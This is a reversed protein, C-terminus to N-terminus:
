PQSLTLAWGHPEWEGATPDFPAETDGVDVGVVLIRAAGDLKEVTLSAHTGRDLSGMPMEGLSAGAEDLKVVVWRMRGYDEWDAELRLSAGQPRDRTEVVVYSAGLPAVPEPPLLRRAKAPWGIRWGVRAPPQMSARDVSFRIIADDFTSGSFLRDRLSSRLVDFATPRKPWRSGDVTRTPSLASLGEVLLGPSAGFRSDLWGFFLAAGRDFGASFPDVPTREPHAQFTAVDDPRDACPTALLAFTEAEAASSGPDTAPATRWISGRAVARALALALACGPPTARDVLAFSSGRDYRSVVDRGELRAAAGGPLEGVGPDAAPVVLYVHWVGDSSPDPPPLALAGTLTRWADETAALSALTFRGTTGPSAHVCIPFRQSCARAWSASTPPAIREDIAAGVDGNAASTPEAATAVRGSSAFVVGLWAAV